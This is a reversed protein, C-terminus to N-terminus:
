DSSKSKNYEYERIADQIRENRLLEEHPIEYIECSSLNTALITVILINSLKM